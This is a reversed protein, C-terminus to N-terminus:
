QQTAVFTDGATGSVNVADTLVTGDYNSCSIVQKNSLQFSTPTTAGAIAGFFVYGTNSGTYEVTCNFRPSSALLQQFTNTTTVTAATPPQQTSVKQPSQAEISGVLLLSICITSLILASFRIRRM